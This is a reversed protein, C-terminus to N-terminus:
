KKKTNIKISSRETGRFAGSNLILNGFNLEYFDLPVHTKDQEEEAM